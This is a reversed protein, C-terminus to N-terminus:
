VIKIDCNEFATGHTVPIGLIKEVADQSIIGNKIVKVVGYALYNLELALKRYDRDNICIREPEKGDNNEMFEKCLDQIKDLM